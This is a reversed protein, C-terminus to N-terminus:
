SARRPRAAATVAPAPGGAHCDGPWKTPSPPRTPLAGGQARRAGRHRSLRGPGPVTRGPQLDLDNVVRTLVVDVPWQATALTAAESFEGVRRLAAVLHELFRRPDNDDEDLSLWAVRGQTGAIRALGQGLATTKGFGAPASVLVLRPGEHLREMLRPRAVLDRRLVPVRVKTGLVAMRHAYSRSPAARRREGASRRGSPGLALYGDPARSAASRAACRGSAPSPRDPRGGHHHAREPSGPLLM